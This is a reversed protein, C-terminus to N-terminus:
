LMTVRGQNFDEELIVKNCFKCCSEERENQLQRYFTAAREREHNDMFFDM